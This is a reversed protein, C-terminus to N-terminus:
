DNWSWGLPVWTMGGDDTRFGLLTDNETTSVVVTDGVSPDAGEPASVTVTSDAGALTVASGADVVEANWSWGEAGDDAKARGKDWKWGTPASATAMFLATVLLCFLGIKKVHAM